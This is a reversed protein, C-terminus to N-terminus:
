EGKLSTKFENLGQMDFANGDLEDILNALSTESQKIESANGAYTVRYKEALAQLQATLKDMLTNPLQHLEDNLPCIWKRELLEHVQTDSLAEITTKTLLHM